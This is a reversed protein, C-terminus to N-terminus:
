HAYLRRFRCGFPRGVDGRANCEGHALHADAAQRAVVLDEVFRQGSGVGLEAHLQDRQAFARLLLIEVPEAVLVEGLVMAVADDVANALRDGPLEVLDGLDQVALAAVEFFVSANEVLGGFAQAVPLQDGLLDQLLDDAHHRRRRARGDVVAPLRDAREAVLRRLELVDLRLELLVLPEGVGVRQRMDPVAAGEVPADGPDEIRALSHHVARQDEGVDVAELLDVVAVAM